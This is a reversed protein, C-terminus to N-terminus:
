PLSLNRIPKLFRSMTEPEEKTGARYYLYLKERARTMAVYFMRREEEIEKETSAKKHPVSGENLDPMVVYDFELGKSGHYTMIRVGEGSRAKGGTTSREREQAMDTLYHELEEINEMRGALEQIDALVQVAEELTGGKYTSGLWAEYGTEKRIYMLAAFPKMHSARECDRELKQINKIVYKDYSHAEALEPFSIVESGCGERDIQRDPRNMIKYFNKRTRDGSLLRLYAAIDEQVFHANGGKGKGARVYPIGTRSLLRILGQADGNTRFLVAAQSLCGRRRLDQLLRVVERDQTERDTFGKCVVEREGSRERAPIQKKEFRSKNERVVASAARIIDPRCRYNTELIIKRTGPYRKPFSLMSEPGAGRFGYVSQDDDGVLFLNNEPMALLFLIREQIPSIDQYEDALIYRCRRQWLRLVDPRREFLQLCEYAMDDFDLKNNERCIQRYESFATEIQERSLAASTQCAGTGISEAQPGGSGRQAAGGGKLRMFAELCVSTMEEGIRDRRLIRRIYDQKEKETLLTLHNGSHEQLIHYFVAHFTGFRVQSRSQLLTEFRQQMELAAAKTFTVVLIEQPPIHSVQTLYQIRKTIVTTKGSGPGALVLAPGCGHCVAERQSANFRELDLNRGKM